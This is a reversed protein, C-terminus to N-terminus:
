LVVGEAFGLHGLLAPPRFNCTPNIVETFPGPIFYLQHKTIPKNSAPNHTSGSNSTSYYWFGIIKIKNEQGSNSDM